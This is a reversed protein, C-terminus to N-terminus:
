AARRQIQVAVPYAFDPNPAFEDGAFAYSLLHTRLWERLPAFEGRRIQESLKPLADEAAAFIQAAM